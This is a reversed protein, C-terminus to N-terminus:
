AATGVVVLLTCSPSTLPTAGSTDLPMMVPGSRGLWGTAELTGPTGAPALLGYWGSIRYDPLGAERMGPLDPVLPSRERTSVAIARRTQRSCRVAIYVGIRLGQQRGVILVDNPACVPGVDVIKVGGM